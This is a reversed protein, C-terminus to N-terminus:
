WNDSLGKNITDWAKDTTSGVTGISIMLVLIILALMVVYEVAAPGSEDYLLRVLLRM